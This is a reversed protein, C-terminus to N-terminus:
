ESNGQFRKVHRNQERYRLYRDLVARQLPHIKVLFEAEDCWIARGEISAKLEGSVVEAYFIITLTSMRTIRNSVNSSYGILDNVKLELGTEEMAERLATQVPNEKWRMFGGPFVLGGEPREVVLYRGQDQVIVAVSGFPPLNGTLLFNLINFFISVSRKLLRYLLYIVVSSRGGIKQSKRENYTCFVFQAIPISLQLFASPHAM